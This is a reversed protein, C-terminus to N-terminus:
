LQNNMSWPENKISREIIALSEPVPLMTCIDRNETHIHTVEKPKRNFLYEKEM